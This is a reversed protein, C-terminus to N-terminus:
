GVLANLIWVLDYQWIDSDIIKLVVEPLGIGVLVAKEIKIFEETEVLFVYSVDHSTEAVL